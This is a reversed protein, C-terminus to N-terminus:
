MMRSHSQMNRAPGDFMAIENNKHLFSIAVSKFGAIDIFMGECISGILWQNRIHNYMIGRAACGSFHREDQNMMLQKDYLDNLTHLINKELEHMSSYMACVDAFDLSCLYRLTLNERVPTVTIVNMNSNTDILVNGIKKLVQMCAFSDSAISHRHNQEIGLGMLVRKNNGPHRIFPAPADEIVHM